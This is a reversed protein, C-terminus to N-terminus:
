LRLLLQQLAPLDDVIYDPDAALLDNRSNYGHTIGVTMGAGGNKGILIDFPADGVMCCEAPAVGLRQAALLFGEPHPKTHRVDGNHVIAGFYDALGHHEYLDHVRHDSGTVIGLKLGQKQLAELMTQLGDFAASDTYHAEIYAGNATIMADVDCGPFLNQYIDALPKGNLQARVEETTPPRYGFQQAVHQYAGAFLILSNLLTGDSDFIIARIQTM